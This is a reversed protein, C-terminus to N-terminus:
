VNYPNIQIFISLGSREGHMDMREYVNNEKERQMETKKIEGRLKGVRKIQREYLVALELYKKGLIM